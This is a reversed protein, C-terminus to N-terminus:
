LLGNKGLSDILVGVFEKIDRDADSTADTHTRATWRLSGSAVDTLSTSAHYREIIRVDARRYLYPWYYGYWGDYGGRWRAVPQEVTVHKIHEHGVVASSLIATAGERRAAELIAKNSDAGFVGEVVVYSKLVNLGRAALRGSLDDEYVRRMTPDQTMGVVLVRGDIKSRTFDPNLWLVDVRTTACSAVLLLLVVFGCTSSIASRSAARVLGCARSAVCSGQRRNVGTM